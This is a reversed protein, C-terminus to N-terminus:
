VVQGHVVNAEEEVELVPEVEAEEEVELVPKYEPLLWTFGLGFMM